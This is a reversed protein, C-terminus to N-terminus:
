VPWLEWAAAEFFLEGEPHALEGDRPILQAEDWFRIAEWIKDRSALLSPHAFLSEVEEASLCPALLPALATKEALPLTPWAPGLCSPLLKMLRSIEDLHKADKISLQAIKAQPDDIEVRFVAGQSAVGSERAQAASPSAYVSHRRNPFHAPRRWEWLNDVLYPVNSPARRTPRPTFPNNKEAGLVDFRYIVFM